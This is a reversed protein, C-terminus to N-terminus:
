GAIVVRLHRMEDEIETPDSVTAAIEARFLEQYRHRMRHVAKKVAEASMGLDVAAEAYTEPVTSAVLFGRLREFLKSKGAERFEQELRDLVRDLVTLAWQREFFKDPSLHDVPELQYRHDASHAELPLILHGGGRKQAHTRSREDSLFYNLGALLFSRFRGKGPDARAFSKRELLQAVFGQTLDEADEVGYGRRRVYVYLPYWYTRCLQEIADAAQPSGQQGAALVLNWHTTAFVGGHAQSESNPEETRV